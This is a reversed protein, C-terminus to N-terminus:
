FKLHIVFKWMPNLYQGLGAYWLVCRVDWFSALHYNENGPIVLLIMGM